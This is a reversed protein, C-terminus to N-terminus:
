PATVAWTGLDHIEDVEGEVSDRSVALAVVAGAPSAGPLGTPGEIRRQIEGGAAVANSEQVAYVCLNGPQATPAAASGGECGAPDIGARTIYHVAGETLETALPVPFSIEGVAV